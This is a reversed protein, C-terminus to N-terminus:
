WGICASQRLCAAKLRKKLSENERFTYEADVLLGLRDHFSLQALEPADQQKALAEAMGNMKMYMLKETTQNNLM